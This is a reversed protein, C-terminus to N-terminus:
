YCTIYKFLINLAIIVIFAILIIQGIFFFTKESNTTTRVSKVIDNNLQFVIKSEEILKNRTDEDLTEAIRNMSERLDRKLQIISSQGFNTVNSGSSSSAKFLSVKQMIQRKKRLIIGGSLLGMYLHYIYVMLLTPDTDEVERLRM